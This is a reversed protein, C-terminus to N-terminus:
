RGQLTVAPDAIAHSLRPCPKTDGTALELRHNCVCPCAECCGGYHSNNAPGKVSPASSANATTDVRDALVKIEARQIRISGRSNAYFRPLAM